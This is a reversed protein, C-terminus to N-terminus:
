QSPGGANALPTCAGSDVVEYGADVLQCVADEFQKSSASNAAQRALAKTRAANPAAAIIRKNWDDLGEVATLLAQHGAIADKPPNLSKLQQVGQRWALAAAQLQRKDGKNVATAFAQGQASGLQQLAGSVGDVYDQKQQVSSVGADVGSPGLAGPDSEGCGAAVLLVMAVAALRMARNRTKTMTNM